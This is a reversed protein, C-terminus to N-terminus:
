YIVYIVGTAFAQGSPHHRGPVGLLIDPIGDGNIDGSPSNSIYTAESEALDPMYMLLPNCRPQGGGQCVPTVSPVVSAQLGQASGFYIVFAGARPVTGDLDYTKHLVNVIVDDYGDHNIDKVGVVTSGFYESSTFPGQIPQPKINLPDIPANMPLPDAFIDGALNTSGKFGYQAGVAGGYLVYFLANATDAVVIDAIGDGNIDGALSMNAGLYYYSPPSTITQAPLTQLGRAGGKFLVITSPAMSSVALEDYLDGAEEDLSPVGVLDWAFYNSGALALLQPSCVGTTENCPNQSLTGAVELLGTQRSVQIGGSGGYIVLVRGYSSSYSADAGPPAYDGMIGIAFDSYGDNNFDGYTVGRNEQQYYLAPILSMNDQWIPNTIGVGARASLGISTAELRGSAFAIPNQGVPSYSPTSAHVLGVSSGHYVYAGRGGFILIDDYADGNVSGIRHFGVGLSPDDDYTVKVPDLPGVPYRSPAPTTILGDESGYYLILEVTNAVIIHTMVDEYGDGNIDGVVKAQHFKYNVERSFNPNLKIQAETAGEGFDGTSHFIYAEGNLYSKSSNNPAGVILDGTGDGNFDAGAVGTGLSSGPTQNRQYMAARGYPNIGGAFWTCNVTCGVSSNADVKPASIPTTGDIGFTSTDAKYVYVTGHGSIGSVTRQPASIALSPLNRSTSQTDAISSIQSGFHSNISPPNLHIAQHHCHDLGSTSRDRNVSNCARQNVATITQNQGIIASLGGTNVSSWPTMYYGFVVGARNIGNVSSSPAGVFVAGAINPMVGAPVISRLPFGNQNKVGEITAGYESVVIHSADPSVAADTDPASELCDWSSIRHIDGTTPQVGKCVFISGTTGRGPNGIILDDCKTFDYGRSAPLPHARYSQSGTVNICARSNYVTGVADGVKQAHSTGDLTNPMNPHWIISAGVPTANTSSDLVLPQFAETATVPYLGSASGRLVHVHRRVGSNTVRLGIVLDDFGDNNYDGTALSSVGQASAITHKVPRCKQSDPSCTTENIGYSVSGSGSVLGVLPDGYMVYVSGRSDTVAIDDCTKLGDVYDAYGSPQPSRDLLIDCNGVVQAESGLQTRPFCDNNFNGTVIKEGLYDKDITDGFYILQPNPWVADKSPAVDTKLEPLPTVIQGNEDQYPPRQYGYYVALAGGAEQTGLTIFPTAQPASIVVDSIGDCNFDGTKIVQGFRQMGLGGGVLRPYISANSTNSDLSRILLQSRASPLGQLEVDVVTVRGDAVSVRAYLDQLGSTLPYISRFYGNGAVIAIRIDTSRQYIETTYSSDGGETWFWPYSGIVASSVSVKPLNTLQTQVLACQARSNIYSDAMNAPEFTSDLYRAIVWFCYKTGASLTRINVSSDGTVSAVPNSWNWADNERKAYVEYTINSGAASWQVSVTGNGNVVVSSSNVGNFRPYTSVPIFNEYGIEKETKAEVGAVSFEYNTNATLNKVDTTAFTANAVPASYGKQYVRYENFRGQLTWSLRVTTPSIPIANNVGTFKSPLTTGQLGANDCSLLCFSLVYLLAYVIRRM